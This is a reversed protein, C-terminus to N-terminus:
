KLFEKNINIRSHIWLHCTRCLLVLNDIDARKERNMFSEIHHIHFKGRSEETNHYKGCRQCIANDRKWVYKVSNVWEISSYFSQREPSCGGRWNPTEDGKKGKLHHVGNKLYPVHGDKIRLQKLQEKVKDTHKLGKFASEHGKKFQQNIDSGRPRTKIGYDRLWEWVRKGNRGIERGIQYAGKGQTFYQDELWERTFGLNERQLAQWKGKCQKDCFSNVQGRENREIEKQCYGCNIKM